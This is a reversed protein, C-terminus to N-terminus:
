TMRVFRIQRRDAPVAESSKKRFFDESHSTLLVTELTSNRFTLESGVFWGAWGDSFSWCSGILMVSGVTIRARACGTRIARISSNPTCAVSVAVWALSASPSDGALQANWRRVSAFYPKTSSAPPPRPRSRGHFAEAFDSRM